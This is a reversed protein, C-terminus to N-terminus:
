IELGFREGPAWVLGELMSSAIELLNDLLCTLSLTNSVSSRTDGGWGTKASQEPCFKPKEKSDEERM